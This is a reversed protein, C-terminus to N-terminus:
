TAKMHRFRSAVFAKLRDEILKRLNQVADYPSDGEAVFPFLSGGCAQYRNDAIPNILVQIEM